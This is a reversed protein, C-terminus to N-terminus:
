FKVEKCMWTKLKALLFCGICNKKIIASLIIKRSFTEYKRNLKLLARNIREDAFINKMAKIKEALKMTSDNAIVKIAAITFNFVPYSLQQRLKEYFVDREYLLCGKEYFEGIKLYREERYSHAQSRENQYYHYFCTKIVEAKEVNKFIELTAYMDESFIENVDAFRFENSKILEAKYLNTCCSMWLGNSDRNKSYGCIMQLLLSNKVEEGIYSYTSLEPVCTKIVKGNKMREDHGFLVIDANTDLIVKLTREVMDTEITDDADVFCIYEGNCKSIGVNRAAGSGRNQQHIVQVRADKKGFQDCIMGSGDTSGDNVLIIQINQYTQNCISELCRVLYNKNNYVPVIISVVISMSSLDVIVSDNIM